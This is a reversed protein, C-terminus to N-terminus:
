AASIKRKMTKRKIEQWSNEKPSNNQESEDFGLFEELQHCEKCINNTSYQVVYPQNKPYQTYSTHRSNEQLAPQSFTQM